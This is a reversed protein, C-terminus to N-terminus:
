QGGGDLHDLLESRVLRAGALPDRRILNLAVSKGAGPEGGILLNREALDVRVPRGTEDTGLHVPQWISLGGGDARRRGTM